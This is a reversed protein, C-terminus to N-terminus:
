HPQLLPKRFAPPIAFLARMTEDTLFRLEPPPLSALRHTMFQLCIEDQGCLAFAMLTGYSPVFQLFPMVTPFVRRLHALLERTTEGSVLPAGIHTCLCGSPSLRRRAQHFFEETYVGDFTGEPDSTDLIIADYLETQEAVFQAADDIVVQVRPDDLAGRHIPYLHKRALEIVDADIEVLTVSEVSPHKLAERAAGGDGGGCILVRRPEPHALLAPHVLPEHYFYDDKEAIQLAGDLLLCRGASQTEAILIDQYASRRTELVSDIEIYTGRGATLTESLRPIMGTMERLTKIPQFLETLKQGLLLTRPRNERQFDCISLEILALRNFEPWTHIVLHSEALIMALTYGGESFAHSTDSLFTFGSDAIASLLEPRAREPNRLLAGECQCEHLLIRLNTGQPLVPNRDM